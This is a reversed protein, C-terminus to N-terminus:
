LFLAAAIGDALFKGSHSLKLHNNQQILTAAEIFHRGQFVLRNAHEEGFTETINQLDIGESTRLKIMVLENMQEKIGLLEEEAPITNQELSKIYVSNSAVNWRRLNSGNYSHASPGFGYYPKGQWYSSNHRSKYGPKCFNSIEYQEYGAKQMEDLLIFFQRAQKEPDIPDTKHAKIKKYLVTKPEVTLAYCSVHPVNENKVIKFNKLLQEDNQLPSGYILDVSFNTFGAAKILALCNISDEATHARNMWKLEAANFSQLGVSLRNVGIQLWEHLIKQNVDDPNAELTIEANADTLFKKSIAEMLMKIDTGTLLSPTGGGFYITEIKETPLFPVTISIEKLLAALLM